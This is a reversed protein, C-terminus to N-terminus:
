TTRQVVNLLDQTKLPTNGIRGVQVAAAVSGVCAADWINSGGALAMASAILLSDGAGAVDQPASNLAAIRDETGKDVPQSHVFVGEEGIKLLINQADSSQLLQESLVVLGDEQNRTSIRAERETPTILHMGRFRSIDGMQSSSQSDAAMFIGHSKALEVIPDVIKQPLCGYNFDSFILLDIQTVMPRLLELLEQQLALSISRQHLHNIRLLSKGNARFRQKLPTPRSNDLMLHAEVGADELAIRSFKAATDNGTVSIFKVSAGLGAAHAAVIAAGGIFCTNDVPTVVITPEEQSMGIPQCTIYEDVILDGLVCIKLTGFNHIVSELRANTINHRVMFDRPLRIASLNADRFEQHLLDLSSFGLEGSGFLLVGGYEQVAALEVNARAEHEKGKVVIAPKLRSILDTVPEDLLFTEDVYSNSSVVELRLHQPVYAENAALRDSNVGVTLHDGCSKAFRLLRLHGPHLINFSGSVFVTTNAM